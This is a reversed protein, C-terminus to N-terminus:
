TNFLTVPFSPRSFTEGSFEWFISVELRGGEVFLFFCSM